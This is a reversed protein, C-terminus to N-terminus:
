ALLMHKLTIHHVDTRKGRRKALLASQGQKQLPLLVRQWDEASWCFM